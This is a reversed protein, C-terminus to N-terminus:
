SRYYDAQKVEVERCYVVVREETTVRSRAQVLEENFIV